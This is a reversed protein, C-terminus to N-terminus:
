RMRPRASLLDNVGEFAILTRVSTQAHVDRRAPQAREGARIGPSGTERTATPSWVTAASARTSCGYHPVLDQSHLRAALVDPWRRNADVTSRDGDTISDGLM